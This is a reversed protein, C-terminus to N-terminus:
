VRCQSSGGFDLYIDGFDQYMGMGGTNGFMQSTLLGNATSEQLGFVRTSKNDLGNRLDELQKATVGTTRNGGIYNRGNAPGGTWLTDENFHLREKAPAGFAMLGTGGNGLVLADNTWNSVPKTYWMRLPNGDSIPKDSDSVNAPAPDAVASPVHLVSGLLPLLLAAALASRLSRKM